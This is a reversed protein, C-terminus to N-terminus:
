LIYNNNIIIDNFIINISNLDIILFQRYIQHYLLNKYHYRIM